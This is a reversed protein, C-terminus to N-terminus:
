FGTTFEGITYNEMTLQGHRAVVGKLGLFGVVGEPLHFGVRFDVITKELPGLTVATPMLLEVAPSNELKRPELGGDFLM